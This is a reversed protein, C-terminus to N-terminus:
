NREDPEAALMSWFRVWEREHAIGAELARRAGRLGSGESLRQRVRYAELQRRHAELRVRALQGPEADFFLRLLGPDRLQPLEDSTTSRWREFVRRGQSTTTYLKRARGGPTSDRREKLYGARELRDAERYVQSHPVSWFNGVSEAVVQKLDYPSAEGLRELLGLVIFSTPTLDIRKPM